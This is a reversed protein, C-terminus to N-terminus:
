LIVLKVPIPLGTTVAQAEGMATATAGSGMVGAVCALAINEASICSTTL